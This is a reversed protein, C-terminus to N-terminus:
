ISYCVEFGGSIVISAENEWDEDSISVKLEKEAEEKSSYEDHDLWVEIYDCTEDVQIGSPDVVYHESFECGPETSFAEVSVSYKKCAEPLTLFEIKEPADKGFSWASPTERMSIANDILAAEISWKCEGSLLAYGAEDDFERDTIWLGRGMYVMNKQELAAIFLDINPRKGVIKMEVSCINAM